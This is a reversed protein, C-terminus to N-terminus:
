QECLTRYYELLQQLSIGISGAYDAEYYEEPM